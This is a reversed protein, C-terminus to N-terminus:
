VGERCSARGIEAHKDMLTLTKQEGDELPAHAELYVKGESLPIGFGPGAQKLESIEPPKDHTRKGHGGGGPWCVQFAVVNARPAVGSVTEFTFGTNVGDGTVGSSGQFPVKTLFNGAATSATHSGHGNYDEGFRPRIALNPEYWPKEPAQFEDASYADTIEKYSFVGILKDNCREAFEAVACDGLYNGSGLPNIVKYGDASEAAFSPHDTNIGTDLVGVVVGEGKLASSTVNDGSWAKDAGILTPGHDTVLQYIKSRTIKKVVPLKAIQLAEEQTLKTSFGNLVKNYQQAVNLPRGVEASAASIAAQQKQQLTLAYSAARPTKLMASTVQLPRLSSTTNAKSQKAEAALLQSQRAILAEDYLEIVYTHEGTLGAEASFKDAVATRKLQNNLGGQQRAATRRQKTREQQKEIQAASPLNLKQLQAPQFVSSHPNGALAVHAVGASYLATLTALTLSKIRM